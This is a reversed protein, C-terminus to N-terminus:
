QRLCALRGAVVNPEGALGVHAPVDDDLHKVERPFLFPRPPNKIEGGQTTYKTQIDRMRARRANRTGTSASKTEHPSWDRKTDGFVSEASRCIVDAESPCIKALPLDTGRM